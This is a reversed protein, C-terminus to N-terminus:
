LGSMDKVIHSKSRFWSNDLSQVFWIYNNNLNVYLICLTTRLSLGENVSTKIYSSIDNHYLISVHIRSYRLALITPLLFM